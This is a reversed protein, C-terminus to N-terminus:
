VQLADAAEAPDLLREQLLVQLWCSSDAGDQTEKQQPTPLIEKHEARRRAM